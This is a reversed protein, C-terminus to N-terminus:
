MTVFHKKMVVSIRWMFNFTSIKIYEM